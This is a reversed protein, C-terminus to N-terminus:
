NKKIDQLTIVKSTLTWLKRKGRPGKKSWGHVVFKNGASLWVRLADFSKAKKERDSIHSTSTSQVGLVGPEEEKIAVIDIFGFLDQRVHAFFNYKEVVQALYGEKRLHKLSRASPNVKAM